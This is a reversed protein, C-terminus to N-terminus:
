EFPCRVGRLALATVVVTEVYKESKGSCDVQPAIFHALHGQLQVASLSTSDMRRNEPVFRHYQEALWARTNAERLAQSYVESKEDTRQPAHTSLPAPSPSPSEDQRAGHWASDRARIAADLDTVEDTRRSSQSGNAEHWADFRHRHAADLDNIDYRKESM